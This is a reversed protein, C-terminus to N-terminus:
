TYKEQEKLYEVLLSEGRSTLKYTIGDHDAPNMLGSLILKMVADKEKKNDPYAVKQKHADVMLDLQTQNIPIGAGRPNKKFPRGAGPYLDKIMAIAEADDKAWVAQKKKRGDFMFTVNYKKKVFTSMGPEDTIHKHGGPVKIYRFETTPRKVGGRFGPYHKTSEDRIKRPNEKKYKKSLYEYSDIYRVLDSGLKEYVLQDRNTHVKRWTATIDELLKNGVALTEDVNHKKDETLKIFDNIRQRFSTMEKDSEYSGNRNTRRNQRGM